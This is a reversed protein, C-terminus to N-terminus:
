SYLAPWRIVDRYSTFFEFLSFTDIQVCSVVNIYKIIPRYMCVFEFRTNYEDM